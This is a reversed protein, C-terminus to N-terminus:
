LTRQTLQKMGTLVYISIKIQYILIQCLLEPSHLPFRMEKLIPLDNKKVGKFKMVYLNRTIKNNYEDNKNGIEIELRM